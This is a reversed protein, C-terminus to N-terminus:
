QGQSQSSNQAPSQSNGTTSTGASGSGATATTAKPANSWLNQVFSPTALDEGDWPSEFTDTICKIQDFYVYFDDVKETPTTWIVIKVLQLSQTSPVYQVSQSIYNPIELTLDKWGRYDISGLRLVYVIGRYDRLQVDVYYNRNSGWAWLDLSRVRGPIPIGTPTLQGDAGATAPTLEIYNYGMRDFRGHIGLSNLTKGQPEARFLADPWTNVFAAQPYGQTSFKSGAVIWHSQQPDDFSELVFSQINQTVEDATM